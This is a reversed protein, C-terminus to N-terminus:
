IGVPNDYAEFRMGHVLDHREKGDDSVLAVYIFKNFLNKRQDSQPTSKQLLRNLIAMQEMILFKAFYDNCEKLLPNVLM